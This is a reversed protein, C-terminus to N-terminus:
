LISNHFPKEWKQDTLPKMSRLYCDSPDFMTYRYPTSGARIQEIYAGIHWGRTYGMHLILIYHHCKIISGVGASWRLVGRFDKTELVM